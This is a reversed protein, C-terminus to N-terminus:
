SHPRFQVRRNIKNRPNNVDYLETEGKGTIVMREAPVNFHNELYEKIALARRQSLSLNYAQDGIADTHGEIIIRKQGVSELNMMQGVSDLLAYSHPLINTSDFEFNILMAFLNSEKQQIPENNIVISRYRPKFLKDAIEQPSPASTYIDNESLDQANLSTACAILLTCLMFIYFDNGITPSIGFYNQKFIQM